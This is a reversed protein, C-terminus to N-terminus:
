RERRPAPAGAQISELFTVVADIRAAAGADRPRLRRFLSGYVPMERDGHSRLGVGEVVSRVTDRPFSGGHRQALTTLNPPVTRLAFTFPGDGLATLGHCSACYDRYIGAGDRDAAVGAAAAAPRQVSEVFAVLNRLRVADRGDPELARFTPGWVPMDPSGHTASGSSGDITAAVRERPFTGGSRQELLTLDAPATRLSSAAPGNGQGSRGHCSACYLDFSISGALSDPAVPPAADPGVQGNLPADAALAAVILIGLARPHNLSM